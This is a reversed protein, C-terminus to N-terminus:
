KGVDISRKVIVYNYPEIDISVAINPILTMIHDM